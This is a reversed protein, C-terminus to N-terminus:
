TREKTCIDMLEKRAAEPLQWLYKMAWGWVEVAMEARGVNTANRQARALADDLSDAEMNALNM